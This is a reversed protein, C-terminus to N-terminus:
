RDRGDVAAIWQGDLIQVDIHHMGAANWGKGSRTLVPGELVPRDAYKEESLETIEFAFVQIGYSPADDQAFRYIRNDQVLVRGGPRATHQDFKVGPNMAHPRWGSRLDDSYYINLFASGSPSSFLWWKGDYRFLSADVFKQGGMLDGVYDWKEPFSSAVYLRLSFDQNSEPILYYNDEWKFVYPYSLHFKECIVIKGYKWNINDTSTAYGIEGKDTARNMVEFFMTSKGDELVLFPDAVFRADIDTVDKGTLVPNQVSDADTLEFPNPGAYIGISWPGYAFGILDTFTSFAYKLYKYPFIKRNGVIVGYVVSFCLIIVLIILYVLYSKV